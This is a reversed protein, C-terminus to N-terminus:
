HFMSTSYGQQSKNFLECFSSAGKNESLNRIFTIIEIIQELPVCSLVQLPSQKNNLHPKSQCIEKGELLSQFVSKNKQASRISRDGYFHARHM